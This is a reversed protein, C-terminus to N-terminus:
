FKFTISQGISMAADDKTTLDNPTMYGLDVNLTTNQALQYGLGADVETASASTKSNAFNNSYADLDLYAIKGYLSLDPTAQFDAGVVFLLSDDDSGSLPNEGFNALATSNDTGIMVTPTFHKDAVYGDQSYAILGSVSLKDNLEKSVSVFAGLQNNKNTDTTATKTTKYKDGTKMALEAKVSLGAVNAKAYGSVRTGNNNDTTNDDYFVAIVGGEIDGLSHTVFIGYDNIDDLNKNGTTSVEDIKDTYAGVSTDGFKASLKARDRTAQWEMLKNGWDSKQRGFDIIVPDVPIHLYAYDTALNANTNNTGDWRQDDTTFRTRLEADGAAATIKLRVRQDWYRVDADAADDDMDWNKEWYGRVYADGGITVKAGAKGARVSDVGADDAFVIAFASLVFVMSLLVILSKKM